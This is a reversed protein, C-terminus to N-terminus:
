QNANEMVQDIYLKKKQNKFSTGKKDKRPLLDRIAFRLPSTWFVIWNWEENDEDGTSDYHFLISESKKLLFAMKM